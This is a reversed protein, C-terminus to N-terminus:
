IFNAAPHGHGGELPHHWPETRDPRICLREHDHVRSPDEESRYAESAAVNTGERSPPGAWSTRIERDYDIRTFRALMEPSLEKVHRFFRHYNTTPSLVKFFSQFMPADEPRVPRVFLRVGEQAVLHTEDEEPYASVVLHLPFPRCFRM